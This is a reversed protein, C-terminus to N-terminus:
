REDKMTWRVKMRVGRSAETTARVKPAADSKAASGAVLVGAAGFWMWLPM